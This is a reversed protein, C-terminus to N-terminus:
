PLTNMKCGIFPNTTGILRGAPCAQRIFDKLDRWLIGVVANADSVDSIHFARDLERKLSVKELTGLSNGKDGFSGESEFSSNKNDDSQLSLNMTDDGGSNLISNLATGTLGDGSEFSSNMNDDSQLSLNMTDDAVASNRELLAASVLIESVGSTM